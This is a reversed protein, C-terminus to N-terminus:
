SNDIKSASAEHITSFIKLDQHRAGLISIPFVEILDCFRLEELRIDVERALHQVEPQLFSFGHLPFMCAAFLLQLLPM